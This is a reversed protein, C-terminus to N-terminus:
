YVRFRVFQCKGRGNPCVNSSGKSVFLYVRHVSVTIGLLSFTHELYVGKCILLSYLDCSALDVVM